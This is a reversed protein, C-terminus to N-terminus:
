IIDLYKPLEDIPIQRFLDLNQLEKKYFDNTSLAVSLVKETQMKRDPLLEAWAM